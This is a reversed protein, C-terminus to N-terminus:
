GGIVGGDTRRVVVVASRPRIGATPWTSFATPDRAIDNDGYGAPRRPHSSMEGPHQINVFM